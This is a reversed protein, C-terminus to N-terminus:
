RYGVCLWRTSPWFLEVMMDYRQSSIRYRQTLWRKEVHPQTFMYRNFSCCFSSIHNKNERKNNIMHFLAIYRSCYVMCIGWLLTTSNKHPFYVCTKLIHAAHSGCRYLQFWVGCDVRRLKVVTFSCDIVSRHATCKYNYFLFKAVQM